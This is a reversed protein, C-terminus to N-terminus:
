NAKPESYGDLSSKVYVLAKNMAQVNLSPIGNAIKNMGNINVTLYSQAENIVKNKKAVWGGEEKSKTEKSLESGRANIEDIKKGFEDITKKATVTTSCLKKVEQCIAKMEDASLIPLEEAVEPKKKNFEEWTTTIKGKITPSFVISRNNIFPGAIWNEGDKKVRDSSMKNLGSTIAEALKAKYREPDIKEANDPAFIETNTIQFINDLVEEYKGLVNTTLTDQYGLQDVVSSGKINKGYYCFANAVSSNKITQSKAAKSGLSGAAKELDNAWKEVRHLQDTVTKWLEIIMAKIKACFAKFREWLSKEDAELSLVFKKTTELRTNKSGYDELSPRRSPIKYSLREYIGELSVEAMKAERESFGDGDEVAKIAQDKVVGLDEMEGLGADLDTTSQDLENATEVVENENEEYGEPPETVEVESELEGEEMSITFLKKKGIRLTAM